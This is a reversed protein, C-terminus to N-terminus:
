RQKRLVIIYPFDLLLIDSNKKMNINLLKFQRFMIFMVIGVM